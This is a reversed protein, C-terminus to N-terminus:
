PARSAHPPRNALVPSAEPGRYFATSPRDSFTPLSDYAKTTLLAFHESTLAVDNAIGGESKDPLRKAGNTKTM